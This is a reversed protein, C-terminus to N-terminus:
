QIREYNGEEIKKMLDAMWKDIDHLSRKLKSIEHINPADGKGRTCLVRCRELMRYDEIDITLSETGLRLASNRSFDPSDSKALSFCTAFNRVSLFVSSCDFIESLTSEKLSECASNFVTQFKECDNVVNLYPSPSGLEHIFETTDSSFVIKSELSLHWAFPNGEEWLEKIRSYSYVSYDSPNFRSDKGEVIALLDIDSLPDIDGRCVSGFAYIHM